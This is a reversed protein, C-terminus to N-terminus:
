GLASWWRRSKDEDMDEWAQETSPHPADPGLVLDGRAKEAMWYSVLADQQHSFASAANVHGPPVDDVAAATSDPPATEVAAATSAAAALGQDAAVDPEPIGFWARVRADDPLEDNKTMYMRTMDDLMGGMDQLDGPPPDGNGPNRRRWDDVLLALQRERYAEEEKERAIQRQILSMGQNNASGDDRSGSWQIITKVHSVRFSCLSDRRPYWECCRIALRPSRQVAWSGLRLMERASRESEERAGDCRTVFM